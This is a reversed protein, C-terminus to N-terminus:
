WRTRVPEEQDPLVLLRGQKQSSRQLRSPSSPSRRRRKRRQLMREKRKDGAMKKEEKARNTAQARTFAAVTTAQERLDASTRQDGEAVPAIAKTRQEIAAIVRNM